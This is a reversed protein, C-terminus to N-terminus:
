SEPAVEPPPTLILTHFSLSRQDNDFWVSLDARHVSVRGSIQKTPGQLAGPHLESFSLEWRFRDDYRGHQFKFSTKGGAGLSNLHSHALYAAQRYEEAAGMHMYGARTLSATGAVGLALVSLAVM